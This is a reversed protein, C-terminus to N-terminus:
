SRTFCTHPQFKEDIESLRGAEALETGLMVLAKNPSLLRLLGRPRPKNMGDVGAAQSEDDSPVKFSVGHVARDLTEVWAEAIPPIADQFWLQVDGRKLNQYTKMCLVGKAFFIRM